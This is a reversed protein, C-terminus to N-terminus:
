AGPEPSAISFHSVNAQQDVSLDFRSFHRGSFGSQASLNQLFRPVQIPDLASGQLRVYLPAQSVTIQELWLGDIHAQSLDVLYQSFGKDASSQLAEVLAANQELQQRLTQLERRLRQPELEVQHALTANAKRLQEVQQQAVAADQSLGWWSVGQWTSFLLLLGGFAAWVLLVHRALLPQQKPVLDGRLLNVQQM